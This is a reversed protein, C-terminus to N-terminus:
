MGISGFVLFRLVQILFNPVAILIPSIMQTIMKVDIAWTSDDDLREVMSDLSDLIKMNKTIESEYSRPDGLTPDITTGIVLNTNIQIRKVILRERIAMKYNSLMFHIRLQPILFLVLVGANALWTIVVGMIGVDWGWLINTATWYLELMLIIALMGFTVNSQMEGIPRTREAFVHYDVVPGKPPSAGDKLLSFYDFIRLREPKEILLGIGKIMAMYIIIFSVLYVAWIMFCVCNLGLYLLYWFKVLHEAQMGISANWPIYGSLFFVGALVGFVVEAPITTWDVNFKPYKLKFRISKWSTNVKPVRLEPTLKSNVNTRYNKFEDGSSFLSELRALRAYVLDEQTPDKLLSQLKKKRAEDNNFLFKHFPAYPNEKKKPETEPEAEPHQDDVGHLEIYLPDKPSIPIQYLMLGGDIARRVLFTILFWLIVWLYMWSDSIVQLLPEGALLAFCIGGVQQTFVLIATRRYSYLIGHKMVLPIRHTENGLTGSEESM